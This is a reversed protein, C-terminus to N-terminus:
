NPLILNSQLNNAFRHSSQVEKELYEVYQEIPIEEIDEIDIIQNLGKILLEYAAEVDIARLCAHKYKYYRQEM